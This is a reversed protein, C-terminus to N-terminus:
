AGWLTVGVDAATPLYVPRNETDRSGDQERTDPLWHRPGVGPGPECGACIILATTLVALYLALYLLSRPM